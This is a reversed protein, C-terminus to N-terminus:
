KNKEQKHKVMKNRKDGKNREEGDFLVLIILNFLFFIVLVTKITAFIDLCVVDCFLRGKKVQQKSGLPM